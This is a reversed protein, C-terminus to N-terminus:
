GINPRRPDEYDSFFGVGQDKWQQLNKRRLLPLIKVRM